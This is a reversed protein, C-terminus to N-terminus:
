DFNSRDLLEKYSFIEDVLTKSGVFEGLSGVYVQLPEKFQDEFREVLNKLKKIIRM